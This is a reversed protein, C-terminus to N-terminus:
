CGMPINLLLRRPERDPRKSLMGFGAPYGQSDLMEKGHVQAPQSSGTRSPQDIGEYLLLLSSCRTNGSAGARERAVVM